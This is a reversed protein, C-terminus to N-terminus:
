QPTVRSHVRTNDYLREGEAPSGPAQSLGGRLLPPRGLEQEDRMISEDAVDGPVITGLLAFEVSM